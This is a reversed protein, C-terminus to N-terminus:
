KLLGILVAIALGLCIGVVKGHWWGSTFAAKETDELCPLRTPPPLRKSAAQVAIHRVNM